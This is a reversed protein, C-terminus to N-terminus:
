GGVEAAWGDPNTTPFGGAILGLTEAPVEVFGGEVWIGAAVAVDSREHGPTGWEVYDIMADPDSFEANTYLGLEGGAPAVVGLAGRADASAAVGILDPVAIDGLAVALIEGPELTADPLAWYGPFQCLWLGATSGAGTGVNRIAAYPAEGFVLQAIAFAPEGSEPTVTDPEITTTSNPTATSEATATVPPTTPPAATTTAEEAAASTAAATPHPAAADDGCAAMVPLLLLLLNAPVGLRRM